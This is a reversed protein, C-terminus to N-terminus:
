TEAAYTAIPLIPAKHLRVKLHKSIELKQWIPIKLRGFEASALSIRRRVVDSTNPVVSGHFVFYKGHRVDSGDLVVVQEGPSIIKCKAGNVKM